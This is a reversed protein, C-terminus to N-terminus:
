RIYQRFLRIIFAREKQDIFFYVFSISILWLLLSKLFEIPFLFDTQIYNIFVMFTFFSITQFIRNWKYAIHVYKFSRIKNWLIISFVMMINGIVLSISAGLISFEKTLINVIPLYLIVAVGQILPM